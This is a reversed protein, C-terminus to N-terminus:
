QRAQGPLGHPPDAVPSKRLARIVPLADHIGPDLGPMVGFKQNASQMMSKFTLFGVSRRGYEKNPAPSAQRGTRM